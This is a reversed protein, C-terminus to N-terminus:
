VLFSVIGTVIPAPNEIPGPNLTIVVTGDSCNVVGASMFPDVMVARMNETVTLVAPKNAATPELLKLM